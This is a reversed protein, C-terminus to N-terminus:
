RFYCHTLTIKTLIKYTIGVFKNMSVTVTKCIISKIVIMIKEFSDTAPRLSKPIQKDKAKVVMGSIAWKCILGFLIIKFKPISCSNPKRLLLIYSIEGAKQITTFLYNLPQPYPISKSCNFFYSCDFCKVLLLEFQIFNTSKNQNKFLSVIFYWVWYRYFLLQM